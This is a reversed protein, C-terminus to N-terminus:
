WDIAFDPPVVSLLRVHIPYRCTLDKPFRDLTPWVHKRAYRLALRELWGAVGKNQIVDLTFFRSTDNFNTM